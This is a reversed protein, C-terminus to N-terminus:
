SSFYIVIKKSLIELLPLIQRIFECIVLLKILEPLFVQFLLETNFELQKELYRQHSIWFSFRFVNYWLIGLGSLILIISTSKVIQVGIAKLNFINEPYPLLTNFYKILYHTIVILLVYSTLGVIGHAEGLVQLYLGYKFLLVLSLIWAYISYTRWHSQNNYSLM